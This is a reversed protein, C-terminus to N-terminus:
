EDTDPAFSVIPMVEHGVRDASPGNGENDLAINSATGPFRDGPGDKLDCFRPAGQGMQGSTKVIHRRTLEREYPNGPGVALGRHAVKALRHEFGAASSCSHDSRDLVPAPSNGPLRVPGGRLGRIQM